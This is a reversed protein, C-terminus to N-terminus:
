EVSLKVLASQGEVLGSYGKGTWVHWTTPLRAYNFLKCGAGSLHRHANGRINFVDRDSGIISASGSLQKLDACSSEKSLAGSLDRSAILAPRDKTRLGSQRPDAQHPELNRARNQARSSVAM